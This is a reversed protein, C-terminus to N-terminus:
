RIMRGIKHQRLNKKKKKLCFVAYSIVLHSSNLRTSKRDRTSARSTTAHRQARVAPEGLLAHRDHQIAARPEVGARTDAVEVGEVERQVPHRSPARGPPTLPSYRARTAITPPPM